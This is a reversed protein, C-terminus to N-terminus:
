PVPSSRTLRVFMLHTLTLAITWIGEKLFLGAFIEGTLVHSGTLLFGLASILGEYLFFGAILAIALWLCHAKAASKSFAPRVSAFLTVLLVGGAMVVSWAFAEANQPYQRLSFGYIQSAFWIAIATLIAQKPKLTAGSVAGFAVLPPHPYIASSLAGIALLTLLWVRQNAVQNWAEFWHGARLDLSASDHNM